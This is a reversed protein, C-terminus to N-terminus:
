YAAAGDKSEEEPKGDINRTLELVDDIDPESLLAYLEQESLGRITETKYEAAGEWWSKIVGNGHLLSDHMAQYLVSYGDCEDFFIFNIADTAQKSGEEDEMQRPKYIGLRDSGAFVRMMGAMLWEVIDAVDSSVVSSRGPQPEVDCEGDYFRIAWERQEALDSEDFQKADAIWGDVIASLEDDSMKAM